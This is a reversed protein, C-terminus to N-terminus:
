AVKRGKLDKGEPTLYGLVSHLRRKNYFIEIYDFVSMCAHIRSAYSTRYILESKLSGFFSEAVANDWCNGRRSMSQICDHQELESRFLDSAYQSGRDSHAVIPARGRKAVGMRFANLVLQAPMTASMSWGVITRSYLDIFVCLYLWGQATEIYTIDSVWVEDPEAVDFERSLVNPAIPLDHKSDTTVKYKRKREPRIENDRMLKEVTNHGCTYGEIRLQKHVRPCGYTERSEEFIGMIRGLLKVSKEKRPTMADRKLWKYYGSRSVELVECLRLISHNFREEQV